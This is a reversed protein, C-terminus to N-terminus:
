YESREILIEDFEMGEIRKDDAGIGVFDSKTLVIRGEDKFIMLQEMNLKPFPLGAEDFLQELAFDGDEILIDEGIRDVEGDANRKLFSARYILEMETALFRYFDLSSEFIWSKQKIGWEDQGMKRHLMSSQNAIVTWPSLNGYLSHYM